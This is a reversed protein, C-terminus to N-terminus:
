KRQKGTAVNEDIAQAEKSEYCNCATKSSFDLGDM